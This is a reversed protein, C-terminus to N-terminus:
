ADGDLESFDKLVITNNSIYILQLPTEAMDPSAIEPM